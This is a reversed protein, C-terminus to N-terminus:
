CLLADEVGAQGISKGSPEAFAASIGLANDWWMMSKPVQMRKDDQDLWM